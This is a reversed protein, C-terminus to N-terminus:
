HAGTTGGLGGEFKCFQSAGTVGGSMGFPSWTMAILDFPGKTGDSCSFTGNTTGVSGHQSYGGTFTCTTKQGQATIKMNSGSHVVTVLGSDTVLQGNNSAPNCDYLTYFFGGFYDGSYDITRLTQREISKTVTQGDISYQLTAAYPTSGTFTATGVKRKTVDSPNFAAGFRPGQTEYVDGTYTDPFRIGGSGSRTLTTTAWYASRDARYVFFTLFMVDQQHKVTVGWGSENPNWWLDDWITGVSEAFANGASLTLAMILARSLRSSWSSSGRTQSITSHMSERWWNSSVPTDIRLGLQAKGQAGLAQCSVGIRHIESALLPAALIVPDNFPAV